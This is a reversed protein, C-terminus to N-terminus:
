DWECVWRGIIKHDTMANFVDNIENLKFKKSILKSLDIYDGRSIQDVMGPLEHHTRVNGYLTGLIDKNHPPTLTLPLETMTSM